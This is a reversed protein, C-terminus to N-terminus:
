KSLEFLKIIAEAHNEIFEDDYVDTDYLLDVESGLSFILQCASVVIYILSISSINPWLGLAKHKDIASLLAGQNPLLLNEVTWSLRKTSHMSSQIMIRAHEPHKACYRTYSRIYNKISDAPNQSEDFVVERRQREFMFEVAKQWLKEKGDFYYKILGHNVNARAAIARVNAGDYGERSFEELAANLIRAQTAKKQENRTIKPKTM